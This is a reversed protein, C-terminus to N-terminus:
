RIVEYYAPELAVEVSKVHLGPIDQEGQENDEGERAVDAEGNQSVPKILPTEKTRQQLIKFPYRHEADEEEADGEM